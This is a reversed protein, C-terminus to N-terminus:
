KAANAPAPDTATLGQPRPAEFHGHPAQFPTNVAPVPMADRYNFANRTAPLELPKTLAARTYETDRDHYYGGGRCGALAGAIAAIAAGQLAWARLSHKM